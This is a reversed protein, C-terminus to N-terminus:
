PSSAEVYAPLPLAAFARLAKALDRVKELERHGKSWLASDLMPGIADARELTRLFEDLPLGEALQRIRVLKSQVDVYEERTVIAEDKTM